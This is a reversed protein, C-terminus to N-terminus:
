DLLFEVLELLEREVVAKLGPFLVVKVKRESRTTGGIITIISSDVINSHIMVV